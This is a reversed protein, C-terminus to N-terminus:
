DNDDSGKKIKKLLLPSQKEYAKLGASIIANTKFGEIEGKAELVTKDMQENFARSMYPINAGVEMELNEIADLIKEKESKSPPKKDSLIKRADEILKSMKNKITRMHMAFENEFQKRKNFWPCPEIYEGNIRRITVPTGSGQNLSTIAEAFQSYSMEVEIYASPEAHLWDKNLHRDVYGPCIKLTIFNSHSISSGFLSQERSSQVRSIQLMGYSPHEDKIRDSM